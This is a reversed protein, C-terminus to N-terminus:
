VHTGHCSCQTVLDFNEGVKLQRRVALICPRGEGGCLEVMDIGDDLEDLKQMMHYMSEMTHMTPRPTEDFDSGQFWDICLGDVFPEENDDEIQYLLTMVVDGLGLLNTGCDDYHEEVIKLKKKVEIGKEKNEKRKRKWEEREDTPYLLEVEQTVYTKDLQFKLIDKDGLTRYLKLMGDRHNMRDHDGRQPRWDNEHEKFEMNCECPTSAISSMSLIKLCLISPAEMDKLKINLACFRHKSVFFVNEAVLQDWVTQQWHSGTLGVGFVDVKMSHAHRIWVLMEKHFKAIAEEPVRRLKWEHYSICIGTIEGDRLKRPVERGPGKICEQYNLRLM